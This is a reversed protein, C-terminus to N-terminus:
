LDSLCLHVLLDCMERSQLIDASSFFEIGRTSKHVEIGLMM